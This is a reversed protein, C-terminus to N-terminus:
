WMKSVANSGAILVQQAVYRVLEIDFELQDAEKSFPLLLEVDQDRLDAKTHVIKCRIEYIRRSVDACLDADDSKSNIKQYPSNKNKVSFFNVREEDEDIFRRLDDAFICEDLTARLQSREDGYAGNRSIYIANLLKAVDTDKDGRFTPHKLVAKLKRHAESQSFRPFYFEIVQYFALYQLLPMGKAGRGYWYLSLPASEFESSPFKLDPAAWDYAVKARRRPVSQRRVVFPIDSILDLQFLFSNSIKMLLGLADDHGNVKVGSIELSVSAPSTGEALARMLKSVKSLKLTPGGESEPGVVIKANTAGTDRPMMGFLRRFIEFPSNPGGPVTLLAEITGAKYNCLAQWGDLFVYNEFDLEILDKLENQDWISLVRRARGSKFGINFISDGDGDYDIEFDIDSAKCRAELESVVAELEDTPLYWPPPEATISTENTM